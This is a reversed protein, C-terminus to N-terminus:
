IYFRLAAFVGFVLAAALFVVFYRNITSADGASMGRDILDRLAIPLALMAASAVLLAALAGVIVHRYPRLFPVLATLPRLSRSKPREATRPSEMDPRAEPKRAPSHEECAPM